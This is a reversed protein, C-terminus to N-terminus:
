ANDLNPTDGRPLVWILLLATHWRVCAVRPGHELYFYLHMVALQAFSCQAAAWLRDRARTQNRLACCPAPRCMGAVLSAGHRAVAGECKAAPLDARPCSFSASWLQLGAESCPWKSECGTLCVTHSLCVWDHALAEHACFFVESVNETSTEYKATVAAVTQTQEDIDIKASSIDAGGEKDANATAAPADERKAAPSQVHSPDQTVQAVEAVEAQGKEATADMYSSARTIPGDKGAM